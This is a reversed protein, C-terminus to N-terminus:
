LLGGEWEIFSYAHIPVYGKYEEPVILIITRKDETERMLLKLWETQNESFLWECHDLVFFNVQNKKLLNKIITLSDNEFEQPFFSYTDIQDQSIENQLHLGLDIYYDIWSDGFKEKLFSQIEETKGTKHEGVIFLLKRKAM